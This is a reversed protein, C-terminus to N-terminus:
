PGASVAERGDRTSLARWVDLNITESFNRVSGDMLLGNVIGPHYSRATVAAYTPVTSSKGEQQNTWDVDYATGGQVCAVSTRPTFVTTFGAQHVRGDVWETHGSSSKFEGGLSCVDAPAAPLSPAAHAANRFYPTYANVEAAGLTMSLGDLFDAPKTGRGPYFAGQGGRQTAPDYVFWVGLNLGYNLPYHEPGNTGARVEDRIESPCLFTKVRMASLWAGDSLVLTDYPQSFDIEDHLNVEELFPLIRAQGSWNGGEPGGFSPPYKQYTNEFNHLALGIQKLNNSCQARRAAERAAQVAPLLLAILVGIIAIVVLL